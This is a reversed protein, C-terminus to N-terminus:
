ANGGDGFKRELEKKKVESIRYDFRELGEKELESPDYGKQESLLKVMTITDGLEIREDGLYGVDGFRAKNYKFSHLKGVESTLITLTFDPSQEVGHRELVEKYM